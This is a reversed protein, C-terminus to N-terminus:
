ISILIERVLQLQLRLRLSVWKEWQDWRCEKISSEFVWKEGWLLLLTWLAVLVMPLSLLRRVNWNREVQRLSRPINGSSTTSVGNYNQREWIRQMQVALGNPLAALLRSFISPTSPANYYPGM